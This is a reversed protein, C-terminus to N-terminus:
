AVSVVSITSLFPTFKQAPSGGGADANQYTVYITTGNSVTAFYDFSCFIPYVGESSEAGVSCTQAVSGSSIVITNGPGGIPSVSGGPTLFGSLVVFVRVVGAVSFVLNNSASSVNSAYGSLTLPMQQSSTNSVTLNGLTAWAYINAGVGGTAGQPGTAGTVGIAGQVGAPTIAVANAVYSFPVANEVYGLNEALVYTPSYAVAQYYGGATVLISGTQVFPYSGPFTVTTGVAPQTYGFSVNNAFSNLGQPGTAGQLGIAGTEGMPGAPGQPGTAGQPGVPGTAGGFPQRVSINNSGDVYLFGSAGSGNSQNLPLKTLINSNPAFVM